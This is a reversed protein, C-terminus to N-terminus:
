DRTRGRLSEMTFPITKRTYAPLPRRTSAWLTESLRLVVAIRHEATGVVVSDAAEASRLPVVRVTMHGRHKKM